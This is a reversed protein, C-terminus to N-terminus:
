IIIVNLNEIEKQSLENNHIEAELNELEQQRVKNIEEVEDM